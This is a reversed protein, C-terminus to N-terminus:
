PNINCKRQCLTKDDTGIFDCEYVDSTKICDTAYSCSCINAYNEYKVILIELICSISILLLLIVVKVIKYPEHYYLILEILPIALLCKYFCLLCLKNVNLSANYVLKSFFDYNKLNNALNLNVKIM